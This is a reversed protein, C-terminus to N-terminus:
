QVMGLWYSSSVSSSKLKWIYNKCQLLHSSSAFFECVSAGTIRMLIVTEIMALFILICFDQMLAIPSGRSNQCLVDEIANEGKEM